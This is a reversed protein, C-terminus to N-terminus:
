YVYIDRGFYIASETYTYEVLYSFILSSCTHPDNNPM